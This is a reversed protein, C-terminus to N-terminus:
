GHQRAENRERLEREQEKLEPTLAEGFDEAEAIRRLELTQGPPFPAKRAWAVAEDMDAVQFIWFGSVLSEPDAFPGETVTTERADRFTVRRGFSSGLLGEGTVMVGASVLEENYRGMEAFMEETAESASPDGKVFVMVRM